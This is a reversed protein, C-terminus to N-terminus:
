ASLRRIREVDGRLGISSVDVITSGGADRFMEIERLAVDEDELVLNDRSIMPDRRLEGVSEMTVPRKSIEVKWRDAPEVVWVSSDFMIHEHPLTFGLANADVPGLVTMAKVAIVEGSKAAGSEVVATQKVHHASLHIVTATSRNSAPRRARTVPAAL